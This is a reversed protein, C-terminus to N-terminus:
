VNKQKLDDALTVLEASLTRLAESLTNIEDRTFKSPEGNKMYSNLKQSFWSNSRKFFRRAIYSGSLVHMLDHERLFQETSQEETNQNTYSNYTM